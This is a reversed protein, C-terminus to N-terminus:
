SQEWFMYGNLLTNQPQSAIVGIPINGIQRANDLVLKYVDIQQAKNDRAYRLNHMIYRLTFNQWSQSFVYGIDKERVSYKIIKEPEDRLSIIERKREFHENTVPNIQTEQIVDGERSQIVVGGPESYIMKGLAIVDRADTWRPKVLQPWEYAGDNFTVPADWQTCVTARYIYFANSIYEGFLTLEGNELCGQAAIIIDKPLLRFPRAQVQLMIPRGGSPDPAGLTRENMESVTLEITRYKRFLNM